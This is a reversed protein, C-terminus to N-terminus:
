NVSMNFIPFFPFLGGEKIINLLGIQVGDLTEAYNLVAIQLGRFSPAHNFVGIQVGEGSGVMNVLGLQGGTLMGDTINVLINAQVGLTSGENIGVGFGAAWSTQLGEFPGTTRNVLGLDLGSVASNSGYLSLRLGKVAESEPVIQLPPFLAIQIPGQATVPAPALFAAGLV